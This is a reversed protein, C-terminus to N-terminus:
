SIEAAHAFLVFFYMYLRFWDSLVHDPDRENACSWGSRDIQDVLDIQIKESAGAGSSSAM